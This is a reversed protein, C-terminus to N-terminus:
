PAGSMVAVLVMLEEALPAAANLGATADNAGGKVRVRGVRSRVVM